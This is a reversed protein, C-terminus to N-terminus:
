EPIEQEAGLRARMVTGRTPVEYAMMAVADTVSNANENFCCM